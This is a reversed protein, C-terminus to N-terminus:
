VDSGSDLALRIKQMLVGQIVASRDDGGSGTASTPAATTGSAGVLELLSMAQSHHQQEQLQELVRKKAAALQKGSALGSRAMTAVGERLMLDAQHLLSRSTAERDAARQGATAAPPPQEIIYQRYECLLHRALKNPDSIADIAIMNRRDWAESTPATPPELQIAMREIVARGVGAGGARSRAADRAVAAEVDIPFYLCAYAANNDRALNYVERRM